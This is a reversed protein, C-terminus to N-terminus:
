KEEPTLCKYRHAFINWCPQYGSYTLSGWGANAVGSSLVFGLAAGITLAFRKMAVGKVRQGRTRRLARAPAPRGCPRGFAVQGIGAVSLVSRHTSDNRVRADACIPDAAARAFGWPIAISGRVPIM